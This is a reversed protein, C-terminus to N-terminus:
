SQESMDPAGEGDHYHHHHVTRTKLRKLLVVILGLRTTDGGFGSWFLYARGNPSNIGMLQALWHPM